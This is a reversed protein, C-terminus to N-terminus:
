REPLREFEILTFAPSFGLRAYLDKARDEDDAGIWLDRAGSAAEIGACTLATGLGRGRHDPLVYVHSIEADDGATELQAFGAPEGGPGRAVLVRANRRLAIQRAHDLYSADIGPFDEDHWARRLAAVTDYPVEEVLVSAGPPPPTEHRMWVLRMPSWGLASFGPRLREGVALDEINVRRHALGALATDAFAALDEARTGPGPDREVRVTNFDWYDPAWTSRVVTGHEWPEVVDCVAAHQAHM